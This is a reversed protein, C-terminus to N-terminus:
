EFGIAVLPDVDSQRQFYGSSKFKKIWYWISFMAFTFCGTLGFIADLDKIVVESESAAISAPLDYKVTTSAITSEDILFDDNTSYESTLGTETTSPINTTESIFEEIFKVCDQNATRNTKQVFDFYINFADSQQLFETNNM